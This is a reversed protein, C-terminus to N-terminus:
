AALADNQHASAAKRLDSDLDMTAFPPAAETAPTRWRAVRRRLADIRDEIRTAIRVVEQLRGILTEDNPEMPDISGLDSPKSERNEQQSDM